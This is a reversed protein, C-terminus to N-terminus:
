FYQKDQFKCFDKATLKEEKIKESSHGCNKLVEMEDEFEKSFIQDSKKYGRFYKLAAVADDPRNQTMLHKPSDAVFVFGIVFIVLIANVILPATYYNLYSNITYGVVIGLNKIVTM